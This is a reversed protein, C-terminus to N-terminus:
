RSAISGLVERAGDPGGRYTWGFLHGDTNSRDIAVMALALVAAGATMVAPLFWFSGRLSEWWFRLRNRM